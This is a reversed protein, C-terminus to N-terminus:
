CEEAINTFGGLSNSWSDQSSKPYAIMVNHAMYTRNDIRSPSHNSTAAVNNSGTCENIVTNQNSTTNNHISEIDDDDTSILLKDEKLLGTENLGQDGVNRATPGAADVLILSNDVGTTNKSTFQGVRRMGHRDVINDRTVFEVNEDNTNARSPTKSSEDDIRQAERLEIMRIREAEKQRDNEVIDLSTMVVPDPKPNCFMQNLAKVVTLDPQVMRFWAIKSGVFILFNFFGQLPLFFYYLKDIWVEEGLRPHIGRMRPLIDTILMALFYCLSHILIIKTESHIHSDTHDSDTNRTTTTNAVAASEGEQRNQQQGEDSQRHHSQNRNRICVAITIFSLFFTNVCLLVITRILVLRRFFAEVNETTGRLIIEKKGFGTGEETDIYAIFPGKM